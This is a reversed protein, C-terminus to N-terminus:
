TTRFVQLYMGITKSQSEIHARAKAVANFATVGSCPLLSAVDLNIDDPVKIVLSRKPVAVYTQWRFSFM